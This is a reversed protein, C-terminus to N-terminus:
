VDKGKGPLVFRFVAGRPSGAAVSITGGFSELISKCIALGMGLGEAKTSHFAEFVEENGWNALGPGTDHVEVVVGDFPDLDSVILLDRREHQPESTMAEIANIVLNLVVQQLQVRDSEVVPQQGSLRREIKIGNREAEPAILTLTDAIVTNVDVVEPKLPTKRLLLRIRDLIEATRMGEAVVREFTRMAASINPPAASLWRLGATGSTVIGALPQKVDHAIWASLHGLTVIRSAHALDSHLMRNSREVELTRAEAQKQKSLDVIIAVGQQVGKDLTAAGILVPVRSGDKRFYEKEVPRLAGTQKLEEVELTVQERWEPPTMDYWRLSGGELEERSYGVMRLFADNAALLKGNLDWFVFGIVDVDFIRRMRYERAELDLYLRANELSVAAQGALLKLVELHSQTFCHPSLNNELYLIAQLNGHAAIPVCLLSRVSNRMVHPDDSFRSDTMADGVIVSERTRVVFRTVSEALCPSALGARMLQVVTSEGRTMAEAAAELAGDRTLLLVAREAGAHVVATRMLTTILEDVVLESSVAQSGKLASAFDIQDIAALTTGRASASSMLGRLGPQARVLQRVKAAAGWRDYCDVADRLYTLAIRDFGRDLYFRSALENALGENQLSGNQRAVRGAQEYLHEAEVVHGDLSAIEARLILHRDAFIQSGTDEGWRHIIREHEFLGARLDDTGRTTVKRLSACIALATYFHYDLHEIQVVRTWPGTYVRASSSLAAESDGALFHLMTKRTWYWQVFVSFGSQAVSREFEEADFTADGFDTLSRTQGRLCAITREVTTTLAAGGQHFGIKRAFELYDRIEDINESLNRGSMLIQSSALQGCYCGFYLDGAELAKRWALRFWEIAVRTDETWSSTLGMTVCTRGYDLLSDRQEALRCATLTLRNGEEFRGFIPGMLWGLLAFGQNSSYTLGHVLSINVMKCIVLATLNFETYYTPPWLEALLRMAALCGTNTMPPLAAISELPRGNLNAWVREYEARVEEESPHHPLDIDLQKLALLGNIVADEYEASVVHLEVKLRYTAAVDMPNRANALLHSVMEKTEALQGDLFTCEAHELALAFTLEYHDLWGGEGVQERGLALYACAAGYAASARARRGARLNLRSVKAIEGHDAVASLARNFHSVIEFVQADLDDDGTSALLLRGISLHRLTRDMPALMGYAAEHIRDHAFGYEDKLAIVLGSALAEQLQNHVDHLPRGVVMALRNRDVRHGLCALVYVVSLSEKRLRRLRGIMLDVINDSAGRETVRQIDWRWRSESTDYNLVGSDVLSGIFQAMFFPNGGAKELVCLALPEVDGEGCHLLEALMELVDNLGLGGLAIETFEIGARRISALRQHLPHGTDTENSRFVGILLLNRIEPRTALAEFADLSATDLWQLDDLLLVLPHSATAFCGVFRCLVQLFRRQGELGSLKPLPPQKGLLLEIEPILNAILQGNQGLAEVITARWIDLERDPKALLDRVIAQFAQAITAYPVDRKYQDFKGNAFIANASALEQHLENVLSSKGVGSYGSILVLQREGTRVVHSYASSLRAADSARGYLREGLRLQASTDHEGLPFERVDHTQNWEDSCRALDARLGSATQYRGEPVKSLLKMVVASVQLPVDARRVSPPVPQRAVHSHIWEIPDTARFPLVGTLLEYLTVGLSYLDSRVDVSRNMRGTQEPAMYAFTGAIFEPAAPAVRERVMRSAIGFGTLRALGDETDIFFNSPKIDKHLIGDRHMSSVADALAVAIRLFAKLDLHEGIWQSLLTGGPDRLYLIGADRLFEMPEVAWRSHLYARLSFEHGLRDVGEKRAAHDPLVVKLVSTRSRERDHSTGRYLQRDEGKWVFDIANETWAVGQILFPTPEMEEHGM